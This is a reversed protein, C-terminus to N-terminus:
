VITESLQVSSILGVTFGHKNVVKYQQKPERYCVLGTEQLCFKRPTLLIGM